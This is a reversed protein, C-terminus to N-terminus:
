KKLLLYFIVITLIISIAPTIRHITRMLDYFPKDLNLLGGTVLLIIFLLGTVITVTWLLPSIEISRLLKYVFIGTVIVGAVSILKHVNFVVPNYPKGTNTLWVGSLVILLFLVGVTTIKMTINM